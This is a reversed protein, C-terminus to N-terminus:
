SETWLNLARLFAGARQIAPANIPGFAGSTDEPTINYIDSPGNLYHLEYVFKHKQAWDLIKEAEHMANLDNLYDPLITDEHIMELSGNREVIRTWRSGEPSTWTVLSKKWGCAEAIAIRQAEPTM